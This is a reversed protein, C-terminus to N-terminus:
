QRALDCMCVRFAVGPIKVFCMDAKAPRVCTRKQRASMPGRKGPPCMDEKAQRVDRRAERKRSSDAEAFILSITCREENSVVVDERRGYAYAMYSAVGREADGLANGCAREGNGDAGGKCRSM